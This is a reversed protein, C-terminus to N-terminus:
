KRKELHALIDELVNSTNQLVDANWYRVVKFGCNDLIKTREADAQANEVHQSGDLEVILRADMCAFDAIFRDVPFQRRFKWGGLQRNRLCQWLRTEAETARRRLSKARSTKGVSM